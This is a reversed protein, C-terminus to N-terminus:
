WERRVLIEGPVILGVRADNEPFETFTYDQAEYDAAPVVCTANRVGRCYIAFEEIVARVIGGSWTAGAYRGEPNAPGIPDALIKLDVTSNALDEEAVAGPIPGDDGGFVFDGRLHAIIADRIIPTLPGAAYVIDTAEPDVDPAAELKVANAGILSDIRLIEGTQASAVGHICIRHGAGMSGPRADVFTLIRTVPDWTDVIPPTPDSWDFAWEPDGTPRIALEVDQEDPVVELMRLSGGDAAVQTPALQQLIALATAIEGESLARDRGVRLAAIDVTGRGARNAYTYGVDIGEIAELWRKYDANNGGASAEGAADLYRRKFASEREEDFGEVDLDLQLECESQLGAPVEQITLVEGATLRTRSGTDIAVVDVDVEGSVPIIENEDIKFRLGTAEHVLELGSPVATGEDGRVRLVNDRRAPTAGKKTTGFTRGWREAGAGTATDPMFDDMASTQHSHLETLAAALWQARRRHYSRRAGINSGPFLARFAAVLLEESEPLNPVRYAM